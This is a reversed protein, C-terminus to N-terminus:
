AADRDSPDRVCGRSVGGRLSPQSLPRILYISSSAWLEIYYAFTHCFTASATSARTLQNDHFYMYKQCNGFIM